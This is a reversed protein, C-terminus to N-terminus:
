FPVRALSTIFHIGRVTLKHLAVDNTVFLEVGLAAACSLQIADPPRIAPNERLEAYLDAAAEDFAVITSTQVIAARLQLALPINGCRRPGVQVEALTMTSTVLEDGRELMRQRLSRTPELFEPHGEFLYIYPNTDWFIRSM